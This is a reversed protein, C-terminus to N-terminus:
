LATSWDDRRCIGRADCHTCAAASGNAPLAQQEFLGTFAADLAVQLQDLLEPMEGSLAATAVEGRAGAGISVFAAESVAHQAQGIWAYLLLQPYQAPAKAREKLTAASATKFDIIHAGNDQDIELRDMRGHLTISCEGRTWAREVEHESFAERLGTKRGHAWRLLEPLLRKLLAEFAAFQAPHLSGKTARALVDKLVTAAQEVVDSAAPKGLLGLRHLQALWAHALVGFDRRDPAEELGELAQLGLLRLAFFKYPCALLAEVASVSLRQGSYLRPALPAPMNSPRAAVGETAANWDRWPLTVGAQACQLRLLELWPSADFKAGPASTTYIMTVPKAAALLLRAADMGDDPLALGLATQQPWSLVAAAVRPRPWLGRQAGLVVVHDAARWAAVGLPLIRVQANQTPVAFHQTDFHADLVAIFAPRTIAVDGPDLGLTELQAAMQRGAEDQMAQKLVPALARRLAQAHAAVTGRAPLAAIMEQLQGVFKLAAAGDGGLKTAQLRLILRQLDQSIARSRVFSELWALAGPRLGAKSAAVWPLKAWDLLDAIRGQQAIDMLRMVSATAATTSMRWGSADAVAVSARELLSRTRRAARRDLAILNIQAAPDRQLAELVTRAAADAHAELHPTAIVDMRAALAALMDADIPEAGALTLPVSHWDPTIVSVPGRWVRAVARLLPLGARELALLMLPQHGSHRRLIALLQQIPGDIGDLTQAVANAIALEKDAFPQAAQAQALAQAGTSAPFQAIDLADILDALQAALARRTGSSSAGLLGRPAQALAQEVTLRRVTASAAGELSQQQCWDAVTRMQPLARAQGASAASRAAAARLEALSWQNVSLILADDAALAISQWAADWFGPGCAFEHRQASQPWGETYVQEITM